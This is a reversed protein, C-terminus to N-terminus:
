FAVVGGGFEVAQGGGDASVHFCAAAVLGFLGLGGYGFELFGLFCQGVADGLGLGVDAVDQEVDGVQGAVHHGFAEGGGVVDNFLFAAGHGVEGGVCEGM